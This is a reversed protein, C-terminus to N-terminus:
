IPRGAHDAEKRSLPATARLPRVLLGLVALGAAFAIWPVIDTQLVGFPLINAIALLAAGLRMPMTVPRAAHGLVAATLLSVAVTLRIMALVTDEWAGIFLLQPQLVFAVPILYVGAGVKLSAFSTQWPSTGAVTAAAFSAIAIPPTIMSLMGFYLVYMHAGLAPVGLEVLAPAALTALLVYVGVTPMGLGLLLSLLATLALLIGLSGASVALMQLTIAFSIGTLNLVGIILGAAAALLVIDPIAGMSQVLSKVTQRARNAFDRLPFVLHTVILAATSVLGAYEATRNEWFLLYILVAVPILYRWGRIRGDAVTEMGPLKLVADPDGEVNLRRAEFDVALFLALYFFLAPLIAAAVVDRYPLELFEAMLFASAGMIPPMLQGGTSSVAEIAAAVHRAYGARAMMPISVSGVAVVNAVASGSVMGFTASGIVSIKAPGGKFRGVLRAALSSFFASGGFNNLLYGFVIFPVVIISAIALVRGFLANTDLGLYVILRPFSVPRTQFADPLHPGIFAFGMMVFLLIPLFLGTRRRTAELVGAIMVMGLIVASPPALALDLQLDPYHMMVYVFLGLVILTFLWNAILKVPGMASVGEILVMATCLGAVLALYQETYYARGMMGPLDIVWATATVLLATRLVVRLAGTVRDLWTM